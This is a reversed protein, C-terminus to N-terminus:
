HKKWRNSQIHVFYINLEAPKIYYPKTNGQKTHSEKM